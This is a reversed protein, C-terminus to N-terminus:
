EESVFAFSKFLRPKCNPGNLFATHKLIFEILPHTSIRCQSSFKYRLKCSYKFELCVSM